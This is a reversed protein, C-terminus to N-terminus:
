RKQDFLQLRPSCLIFLKLFLFCTHPNIYSSVELNSSLNYKSYMNLLLINWIGVIHFINKEYSVEPIMLPGNGGGARRSWLATTLVPITPSYIRATLSTSPWRRLCAPLTVCSPVLTSCWLSRSSFSSRLRLLASSTLWCLASPLFNRGAVM